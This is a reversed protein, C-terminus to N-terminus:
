AAEAKLFTEIAEFVDFTGMFKGDSIRYIARKGVDALRGQAKEDRYGRLNLEERVTPTKRAM